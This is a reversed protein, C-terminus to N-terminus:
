AKKENLPIKNWEVTEDEPDAYDFDKTKVDLDEGYQIRSDIQLVIITM